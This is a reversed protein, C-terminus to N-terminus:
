EGNGYPVEGPKKADDGIKFEFFLLLAPFNNDTGGDGNGKEGLAFIFIFM